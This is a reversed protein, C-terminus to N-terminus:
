FTFGFGTNFVGIDRKSSPFNPVSSVGGPTQAALLSDNVVHVWSAGGKIYWTGLRQPIFPLFYKALIGTSFYGFNGSSCALTTTSGCFNTTGDQRNWYSSPGVVFWTPFSLTLPVGASKAFSYTPNIGIDFRYTKGNKGLAVTSPGAANYFLNVYPNLPIPLGLFSDDLALGFVYNYDTAGGPFQFQLAQATFTWYKAFTVGFGGWWDMEQWVRGGAPPSSWYENWLGGFVWFKNIVTDPSKYIDLSLNVSPQTVFGTSYLYMGGGTVRTNAFNMDFGGHVDLVWPTAPPTAKVPMDAAKAATVGSAILGASVVSLLLKKLLM